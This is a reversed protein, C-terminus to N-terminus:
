YPLADNEVEVPRRCVPIGGLLRALEVVLERGECTKINGDDPTEGSPAL